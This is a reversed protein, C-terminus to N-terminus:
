GSFEWHWPEPRSGTPEAWGPHFWGWRFSNADLWEHQPTGFSEVGDCLDVALGWGHNSTGPVAALTPKRVFLDQQMALDRYSDTACIPTGFTEAYAKSMANFSAAADARLLHGPAGWLPCLAATPLQGNPYASVDTGACGGVGLVPEGRAQARAKVLANEVARQEAVSTAQALKASSDKASLNTALAAVLRSASTVLTTSRAQTARVGREAAAARDAAVQAAAAADQHKEVAARAVHLTAAREAAMARVDHARRLFDAPDSAGLLATISASSSGLPGGRYANAALRNLSGQAQAAAEEDAAALEKAAKAALTAADAKRKAVSHAELAKSAAARLVALEATAQQLSATGARVAAALAAAQEPSLTPSASPTPSSGPSSTGSPTPAGTSGPSPTGPSPSSSATGGPGPSATPSATPSPTATGAPTAPDGAVDGAGGGATPAPASSPTDSAVAGPASPTLAPSAARAPATLALSLAGSAALAGVRVWLRAAGM